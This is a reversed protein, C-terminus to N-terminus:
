KKFNVKIIVEKANGAEDLAKVILQNEGETLPITVDFSGEFDVNALFGSAFVQADKETKGEVKIRNDKEFTQGDTPNTVELAPEDTDVVIIAGRSFESTTGNTDVALVKIFNEGKKLVFDNFVFKGDKVEVEGSKESDLFIEVKSGGPAIGSISIKEENTAQPLSDLIPATVPSIEDVTKSDRQFVSSLLDAFRGLSSVGVTLLVFILFVSFVSLFFIRKIIQKEERRALKEVRYARKM